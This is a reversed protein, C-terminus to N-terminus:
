RPERPPRNKGAIAALIFFFSVLRVGYRAISGENPSDSLSQALRNFGEVFFSLSFLLFFPDRGRRWFRLFFLGIAFSALAIAGILMANIASM